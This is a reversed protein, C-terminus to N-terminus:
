SQSVLTTAIEREEAPKYWGGVYKIYISVRKGLVTAGDQVGLVFGAQRRLVQVNPFASVIGINGTGTLAAAIVGELYLAQYDRPFLRIFNRKPTVDSAIVSGFYVDPYEDAIDKLPLGMFEANGIVINAGQKILEEAYPITLDPGVEERFVYKAGRYKEAI